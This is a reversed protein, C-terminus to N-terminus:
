KKGRLIKNTLKLKVVQRLAYGKFSKSIKWMKNINIAGVNNVRILRRM